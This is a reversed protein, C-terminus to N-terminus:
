KHTFLPNIKIENWVLASAGMVGANKHKLLSPLLKVKNQYIKMLNKEMHHWTPQFILDKANALGGFIFIAEPSTLAITDALKKGLIEGTFDFATLAIADERLAAQTIMEATLKNFSIDRLESSDNRDALLEYVTRKIGTASVYTELCGKRGCGCQRGNNYVTVHGLEGAFGDAGYMLKGNVVFGSGLGTGLTIVLFNDMGKAGGYVMEGIAAANADNTIAMPVDFYQKLLKVFEIFGKWPLNPAQEITGKYYNANPAGIGIGQLSYDSDNGLLDSIERHLTKIYDEVKVYSATDISTQSLCNGVEDVIGIKTNTGGIDLGVAVEKM